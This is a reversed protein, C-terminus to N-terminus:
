ALRLRNLSAVAPGRSIDPIISLELITVAPLNVHYDETETTTGQPSFNWQQRVIEQFSQGHDPSWRLVYEQTREAAPEEFTMWIRRVQQPQDFLLRITQKGPGAARWGSAGDARLAHEIPHTPDESTVEVEVLDELNLWDQEPSLTNHQVDAIIRKRMSTGGRRSSSNGKALPPITGSEYAVRIEPLTRETLSRLEELTRFLLTGTAGAVGVRATKIAAYVQLAIDVLRGHEASFWDLRQQLTLAQDNLLVQRASGFSTAADAIANDLCRNLTQFEDTTIDQNQEHALQTVSQCVDGYDHVVQDITYGLRLLEAGHVAATRGMETSAPTPETNFADGHPEGQELRLTEVLQQLFLPVGHDLAMPLEAPAFRQAGKTRCRTILETRNSTLFEHLMVPYEKEPPAMEAHPTSRPNQGDRSNHCPAPHPDPRFQEPSFYVRGRRSDMRTPVALLGDEKEPPSPFEVEPTYHKFDYPYPMKARRSGIVKERSGKRHAM